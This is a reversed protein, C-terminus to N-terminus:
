QIWDPINATGQSQYIVRMRVALFLVAFMPAYNVTLAAMEFIRFATSDSYKWNNWDARMRTLALILFIVMYWSCLIIVCKMPTSIPKVEDDGQSSPGPDQRISRQLMELPQLRGDSSHLASGGVVSFLHMM